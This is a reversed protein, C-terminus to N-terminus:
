PATARQSRWLAVKNADEGCPSPRPARRRWALAAAGRTTDGEAVTPLPAALERRTSLTRRWTSPGGVSRRATPPGDFHRRIRM